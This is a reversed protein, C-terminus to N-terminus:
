IKNIWYNFIDKLSINAENLEKPIISTETMGPITNVELFFIENENTVIFDSRSIHKCGMVEHVLQAQSKLRDKLEYDIEAPCVEEALSEKNYKSEYDFFSGKPKIEVVSLPMTVGEYNVVGVSFERGIIADEIIFNVDSNKSLFDKLVEKDATMITNVSSGGEVPKAFVLGKIDSAKEYELAVNINNKEVIRKAERKDLAKKHVEPSSFIYKLGISELFEQIEGDEGGAGHVMPIVVDIEDKQNIVKDKDQPYDFVFSDDIRLIKKINQASALSVEREAGGGGTIIAINSEREM